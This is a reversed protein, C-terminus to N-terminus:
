IPLKTEMGKTHTTCWPQTPSGAAPLALLQSAWDEGVVIASLKRDNNAANDHSDASDDLCAALVEFTHVSV